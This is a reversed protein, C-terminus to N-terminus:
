CQNIVADDSLQLQTRPKMAIVASELVLRKTTYCPQQQVRLGLPPLAMHQTSRSDIGTEIIPAKCSCPGFGRPRIKGTKPRPVARYSDLLPSVPGRNNVRWDRLPLVPSPLIGTASGNAKKPTMQHKQKCGGFGTLIKSQNGILNMQLELLGESISPVSTATRAPASPNVYIRRGFLQRTLLAKTPSREILDQGCKTTPTSDALLRRESSREQRQMERRNLINVFLKIISFLIIKYSCNFSTQTTNSNNSESSLSRISNSLPHIILIRTPYQASIRIGGVVFINSNTSSIKHIFCDIM